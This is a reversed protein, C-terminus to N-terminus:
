HKRRVEITCIMSERPKSPDQKRYRQVTTKTEIYKEGADMWFQKNDEQKFLTVTDEGVVLRMWYQHNVLIPRSKMYEQVADYMVPINSLVNSEFCKDKDFYVTIRCGSRICNEMLTDDDYIYKIKQLRRSEITNKTLNYTTIATGLTMCLTAFAKWWFMETECDMITLSTTQLFVHQIVRKYVNKTSIM